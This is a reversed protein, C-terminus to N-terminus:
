GAVGGTAPDLEALVASLRAAVERVAALADATGVPSEGSNKARAIQNVNVGVRGVARSLAVLEALVAAREGVSARGGVLTSEVLLRPVSLGAGAALEELRAAEADSAKVYFRRERGGALRTRRRRVAAVQRETGSETM